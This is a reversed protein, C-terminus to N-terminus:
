ALTVEFDGTVHFAPLTSTNYLVAFTGGFKNGTLIGSARTEASIDVNIPLLVEQGTQINWIREGCALVVRQTATFITPKSADASLFEDTSTTEFDAIGLRENFHQLSQFPSRTHFYAILRGQDDREVAGEEITTTLGQLHTVNLSSRGFIIHGGTIRVVSRLGLGIPKGLDVEPQPHNKLMANPGVLNEIIPLSQDLEDYTLKLLPEAEPGRNTQYFRFERGNVVCFYVARVEPHNAYSYAQEIEDLEIKVSPSKAEIVWRVKKEVDCIYDAESRLIPDKNPKKLGIYVRPYRLSQGRIINWGTSARYGLHKLLPDIIEGRVDLEGMQDFDFTPLDM